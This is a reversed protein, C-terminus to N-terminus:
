LRVGTQCDRYKTRCLMTMGSGGVGSISQADQLPTTLDIPDLRAVVAPSSTADRVITISAPASWYQCATANVRRISRWSARRDMM